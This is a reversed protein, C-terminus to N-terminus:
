EISPLPATKVEVIKSTRQLAPYLRSNEISTSARPLSGRAILDREIKSFLLEFENLWYAYAPTCSM